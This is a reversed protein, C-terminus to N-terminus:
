MDSLASEIVGSETYSIAFFATVGISSIIVISFFVILQTRIKM